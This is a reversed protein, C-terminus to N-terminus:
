VLSIPTEKLIAGRMKRVTESDGSLCVNTVMARLPGGLQLGPLAKPESSVVMAQLRGKSKDSVEQCLNRLNDVNQAHVPLKHTPTGLETGDPHSWKVLAGNTAHIVDSPEPGALTSSFPINFSLHLTNFGPLAQRPPAASAATAAQPERPQKSPQPASQM